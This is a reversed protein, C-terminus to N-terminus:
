KGRPLVKVNAPLSFVDDKLDKNVEVSESYMEYIKEGNRDRRIDWPWKVGGSERYKAFISTETDFDHYDENRRKFTQRVPLKNEQSFSVTVTRGDADTIDVIEVPFNEYIDAGQSYFEIGPENLRQRLIYFINRLTSDLYQEYRKDELPRAGRFTIDWAGNETLLVSSSKDKGFAQRERVEVKGPVPALYRTYITAISLGSIQERYFSYARGAETRDQMHLFAQGGLADVAEYVVRKGRQEHTEAAEISSAGCFLAAILVVASRATPLRFRRGWWNTVAKRTM